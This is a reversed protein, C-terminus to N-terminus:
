LELWDTHPNGRAQCFFSQLLRSKLSPRKLTQSHMYIQPQYKSLSRSTSSWNRTRSLGIVINCLLSSPVAAFKRKIHGRNRIPSCLSDATGVQKHPSQLQLKSGLSLRSTRDAPNHLFFFSLSFSRILLIKCVVCSNCPPIKLPQTNGPICIGRTPNAEGRPSISCRSYGVITVM